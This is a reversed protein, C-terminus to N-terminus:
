FCGWGGRWQYASERIGREDSRGGHKSRLRRLGNWCKRTAPPFGSALVATPAFEGDSYFTANTYMRAVPMEPNGSYCIEAWADTETNGHKDPQTYAVLQLTMAGKASITILVEEGGHEVAIVTKRIIGNTLVDNMAM